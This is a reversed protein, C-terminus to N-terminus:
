CRNANVAAHLNWIQITFKNESVAVTLLDGERHRAALCALPPWIEEEPPGWGTLREALEAM